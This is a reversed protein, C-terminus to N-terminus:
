RCPYHSNQRQRYTGGKASYKKLSMGMRTAEVKAESLNYKGDKAITISDQAEIQSVFMLLAFAVWLSKKLM